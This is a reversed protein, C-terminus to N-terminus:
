CRAAALQMSGERCFVGSLIVLKNSTAAARPIKQELFVKELGCNVALVPREVRYM